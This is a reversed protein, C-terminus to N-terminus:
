RCRFKCNQILLQIINFYYIYFFGPTQQPLWSIVRKITFQLLYNIEEVTMTSIRRERGKELLCCAYCKESIEGNSGVSSNQTAFSIRAGPLSAQFNKKHYNIEELEEEREADTKLCELHFFRTCTSCQKLTESNSHCDYCFSASEM